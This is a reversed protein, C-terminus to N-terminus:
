QHFHHNKSRMPDHQSSEELLELDCVSSSFVLVETPGLVSQGVSGRSFSPSSGPETLIVSTIMRIQKFCAANSLM